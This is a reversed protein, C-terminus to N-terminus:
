SLKTKFAQSLFINSIFYRTNEMKCFRRILDFRPVFPRFPVPVNVTTNFIDRIEMGPKMRFLTTPTAIACVHDRLFSALFKFPTPPPSFLFFFFTIRPIIDPNQCDHIKNEAVGAEEEMGKIRRVPHEKCARNLRYVNFFAIASAQELGKSSMKELKLM